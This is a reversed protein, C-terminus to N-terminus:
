LSKTNYRTKSAHSHDAAPQSGLITLCITGPALCDSAFNDRDRDRDIREIRPPNMKRLRPGESVQDRVTDRTGRNEDRHDGQETQMPLSWQFQAMCLKVSDVEGPQTYCESVVLTM